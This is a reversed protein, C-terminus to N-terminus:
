KYIYNCVDIYDELSLDEARVNIDIDKKVLVELTKEWLDKPLNNKLTKRKHSFSMKLYNQFMDVNYINLNNEKLSFHVVASDVKPIPNFCTNKVVFLKKLNYKVNLLITMLGYEKTGVKACFRDAVENQVMVVMDDIKYPSNILREIIPTTIYYPLNAIVFLKNYKVDKLESELDVTLFDKYIVKTNEDEIEDLIEHMREDIEFAIVKCGKNKLERTLAGQGPGIEIILDDTSIDLSNVIKQIINKDKLFNQGFSKKAKIM